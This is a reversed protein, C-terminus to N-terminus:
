LFTSETNGLLKVDIQEDGFFASPATEALVTQSGNMKITAKSNQTKKHRGNSTSRYRQQLQGNLAGLFIAKCRFYPLCVM